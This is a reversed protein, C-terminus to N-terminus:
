REEEDEMLESSFGAEACKVRKTRFVQGDKKVVVALIFYETTARAKAASTWACVRASIGDHAMGQRSSAMVALDLQAMESSAQTQLFKSTMRPEAVGQTMSLHPASTARFLTRGAVSAKQLFAPEPEPEEEAPEDAAPVVM